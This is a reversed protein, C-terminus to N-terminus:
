RIANLIAIFYASWLTALSLGLSSGYKTVLSVPLSTPVIGQILESAVYIDLCQEGAMSLLRFLKLNSFVFFLRIVIYAVISISTTILAFSPTWLNKNLQISTFLILIVGIVSLLGGTALSSVIAQRETRAFVIFVGIQFGIAYNILAFITSYLGEPDFNLFCYIEKRCTPNNYLHNNGLIAADVFRELGGTCNAYQGLDKDFYGGPGLYGRPCGELKVFLMALTAALVLGFVIILERIRILKFITRKETDNTIYCKLTSGKTCHHILFFLFQCLAIRQLVGMIRFNEWDKNKNIIMGLFILQITRLLM